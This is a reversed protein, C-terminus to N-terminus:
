KNKSDYAKQCLELYRALGAQDLADLYSQWEADNDIDLDGITFRAMMEEVIKKLTQEYEAVEQADEASFYLPPVALSEDQAMPTLKASEKFLITELEFPNDSMQTLRFDSSRFSPNAQMWQDNQINGWSKLAVYLAQEGNIGKQGEEAWKWGNGEPGLYAAIEVEQQYFGDAWRVAVAPNKAASTVIFKSVSFPSYPDLPQVAFGNPGKLPPVVVYQNWRAGEVNEIPLWGPYGWPISGVVNDEAQGVRQLTPTDQTFANPDLLGEDFLQNLFRLGERWEPKNYTVDVKGDNMFRRSSPNYLFSNMFYFDFQSNWGNVNATLPLEDAVGNGNPDKEKFARLVEVYEDLTTPVELGLTDLWPKYIWLKQAVSCHYCDNIEPLSYINGSPSTVVEKALPYQAFANQINVGYTDILDNIPIFIGQSGYLEIQAATLGFGMIVDPIDGSSLMLNLKQIGDEGEPLVIWEVHVNTKEEYWKTFENTSFDEVSPQNAVAVRLTVKEDVIPFYGEPIPQRSLKGDRPDDDSPVKELAPPIRVEVDGSAAPAASSGSDTSGSDTSAPATSSGSDTSSPNSAPAGGCSALFFCVLLVASCSKLLRLM